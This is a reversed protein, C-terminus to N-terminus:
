RTVITTGSTLATFIPAAPIVPRDAAGPSEVPNTIETIFMPFVGPWYVTEQVDSFRQCTISPLEFEEVSSNSGNFMLSDKGIYIRINTGGTEFPTGTEPEDSVTVHQTFEWFSADIFKM